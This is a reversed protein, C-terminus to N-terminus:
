PNSLINFPPPRALLAITLCNKRLVMLELFGFRKASSSDHDDSVSLEDRINCLAYLDQSNVLTGPTQLTSYWSNNRLAAIVAQLTLDARPFQKVEAVTM